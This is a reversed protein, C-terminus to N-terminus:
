TINIGQREHKANHAGPMGAALATKSKTGLFM